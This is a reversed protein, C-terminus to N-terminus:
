KKEKQKKLMENRKQMRAAGIQRLTEVMRDEQTLHAVTDGVMELFAGCMEGSSPNTLDAHPKVTQIYAHAHRCAMSGVQQPTILEGVLGRRHNMVNACLVDFDRQLDEVKKAESVQAYHMCLPKTMLGSIQDMARKMVMVDMAQASTPMNRQNAARTSHRAMAQPATKPATVLPQKAAELLAHMGDEAKQTPATAEVAQEAEDLTDWPNMRQVNLSLCPTALVM